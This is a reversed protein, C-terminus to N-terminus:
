VERITIGLKKLKVQLLMRDKVSSLERYIKSDTTLNAIKEDKPLALLVKSLRVAKGGAYYWEGRMFVYTYTGRILNPLNKVKIPKTTEGFDRNKAIVKNLELQTNDLGNIKNGIEKGVKYLNGMQILEKVKEEKDYYLFLYLGLDDLSGNVDCRIEVLEGSQLQLAIVADNKM